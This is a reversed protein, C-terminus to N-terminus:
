YDEKEDYEGEMKYKKIIKLSEESLNLYDEPAKMTETLLFELSWRDAYPKAQEDRFPNAALLELIEKTLETKNQRFVRKMMFILSYKYTNLKGFVAIRITENEEIVRALYSKNKKHLLFRCICRAYAGSVARNSSFKEENEILLSTCFQEADETNNNTLGDIYAAIARENEIIDCHNDM